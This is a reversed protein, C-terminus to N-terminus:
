LKLDNHFNLNYALFHLHKTDNYRRYANYLFPVSARMVCYMKLAELSVAKKHLQSYELDM